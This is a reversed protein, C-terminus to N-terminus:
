KKFLRKLLQDLERSEIRTLGCKRAAQLAKRYEKSEINKNLKEYDGARGAPRYQDMINVFCSTSVGDVLYSFIEEAESNGGPMLLHRVLLGRVALGDKDVVLDGVQRQMELLAARAVEGYDGAGLYRQGSDKYWFKFDPMYIDIVGDLLELTELSDYGGSNYVLPVHLGDRIARPLAELIQAVVHSPTVLNINHCGKKQLGLMLSALQQSDVIACDGEKCHSIEHNQCFVCLLNCGCFFITGSGDTGVLCSEEGFHPGYSAVEASGALRCYGREGQFRNVGCARPCLRCCSLQNKALTIRRDLEGSLYLDHYPRQM